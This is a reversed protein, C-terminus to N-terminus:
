AKQVTVEVPTPSIITNYVPSYKALEALKEPPADSKVHFTVRIKQYGRPVDNSLGLFGRIDLEGEIESEVSELQIHRAAAHYVLASTLCGALAHLLNEVPNPATDDGLMVKAEDNEAVFPAERTHDQGAGYFEQIESRNHGRELWRNRVRFRFPGLAPEARISQIVEALKEVDIGNVMDVTKTVM